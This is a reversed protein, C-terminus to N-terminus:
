RECPSLSRSMRVEFRPDDPSVSQREGTMTFGARLYAAQAPTNDDVVWLRLTRAGEKRAWDAVADILMGAVGHGRASPAVWLSLVERDSSPSDPMRRGGVLGIVQSGADRAVFNRTTATRGRWTKEDFAVERAYTSSFAEPADRLATLRADRLVQWDAETILQMTTTM